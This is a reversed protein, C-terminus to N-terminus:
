IVNVSDRGWYEDTVKAVRLVVSVRRCRARRGAYRNGIAAENTAALNAAIILKSAVPKGADLRVNLANGVMVVACGQLDYSWNHVPIRWSIIHRISRNRGMKM